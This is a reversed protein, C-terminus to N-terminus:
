VQSRFMAQEDTLKRKRYLDELCKDQNTRKNFQKFLEVALPRDEGFMNLVTHRDLLRGPFCTGQSVTNEMILPVVAGQEKRM